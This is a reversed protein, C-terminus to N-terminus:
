RADGAAEAERAAAVPQRDHDSQRARRAAKRAGREARKRAAKERREAERRGAHPARGTVSGAGSVAAGGGAAAVWGREAPWGRLLERLRDLEQETLSGVLLAVEPLLDLWASARLRELQDAM